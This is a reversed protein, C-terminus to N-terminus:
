VEVSVNSADENHTHNYIEKLPLPAVLHDRFRGAAQQEDSKPLNNQLQRAQMPFLKVM